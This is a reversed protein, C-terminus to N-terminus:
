LKGQREVERLAENLYLIAWNRLFLTQPFTDINHSSYNHVIGGPQSIKKISYAKFKEPSFQVVPPCIYEQCTNDDSNYYLSGGSAGDNALARAFGTKSTLVYDEWMGNLIFQRSLEDSKVTPDRLFVDQYWKKEEGDKMTEIYKKLDQHYEEAAHAFVQHAIQPDLQIDERLLVPYIPVVFDTERRIPLEEKQLLLADLDM